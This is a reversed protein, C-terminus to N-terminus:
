FNYDFFKVPKDEMRFQGQGWGKKSLHVRMTPAEPNSEYAYRQTSNDFNATFGGIGLQKAPKTQNAIMPRIEIIKDNIIKTVEYPQIDSYLYRNCFKRISTEM